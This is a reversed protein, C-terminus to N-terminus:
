FALSETNLDKATLRAFCAIDDLALTAGYMVGAQINAQAFVVCDVSEDVAHNSEGFTAIAALKDINHRM